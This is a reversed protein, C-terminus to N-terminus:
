QSDYVDPKYYSCKAGLGEGTRTCIGNEGAGLGGFLALVSGPHLMSALKVGAAETDSESKSYITM